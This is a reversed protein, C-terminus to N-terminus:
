IMLCMKLFGLGKELIEIRAKGLSLYKELNTCKKGGLGGGQFNDWM